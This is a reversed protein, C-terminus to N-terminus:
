GAIYSAAGTSEAGCRETASMAAAHSGACGRLVLQEAAESGENEAVIDEM